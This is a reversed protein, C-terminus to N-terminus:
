PGDGQSASRQRLMVVLAIVIVGLVIVALAVNVQSGIAYSIEDTM